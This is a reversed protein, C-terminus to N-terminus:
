KSLQANFVERAINVGELVGKTTYTAGSINDVTIESDVTKGIFKEAFSPEEAKSGIGKTESHELLRMGTINGDSSFGTLIVLDTDGFGKSKTKLAYGNLKDNKYVEFIEIIASNSAIIASLKGEDLPKFKSDDGFVQKLAVISGEMEIEAIKDKTLNNSVALVGASIVTIILLIMGLKITEKM